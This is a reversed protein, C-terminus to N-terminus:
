ISVHLHSLSNQRSIRYTAQRIYHYHPYPLAFHVIFSLACPHCVRFNLSPPLFPSPLPFCLAPSHLSFLRFSGPSVFSGYTDVPLGFKFGLFFLSFFLFISPPYAWGSGMCLAFLPRASHPTILSATSPHPMSPNHTSTYTFTYTVLPVFFLPVLRYGLILPVHQLLLPGSDWKKSTTAFRKLATTPTFPVSSPLTEVVLGCDLVLM